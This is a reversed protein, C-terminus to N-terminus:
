LSLPMTLWDQGNSTIEFVSTQSDSFNDPVLSTTCSRFGVSHISLRTRNNPIIDLNYHIGANNALDTLLSTKKVKLAPGYSLDPYEGWSITGYASADSARYEFAIYADLAEHEVVVSGAGAGSSCEVYSLGFSNISLVTLMISLLLDPIFKM